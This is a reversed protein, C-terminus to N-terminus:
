SRAFDHSGLPRCVKPWGRELWYAVVGRERMFNKYRETKRPEAYHPQWFLMNPASVTYGAEVGDEYFEGSM